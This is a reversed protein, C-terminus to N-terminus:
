GNRKRFLSFAEYCVSTKAQGGQQKVQQVYRNVKASRNKNKLGFTKDEVAKEKAKQVAKKSAKPPM